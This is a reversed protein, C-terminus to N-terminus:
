YKGSRKRFSRKKSKKISKYKRSKRKVLRSKQLSRRSGRGSQRNFPNTSKSYSWSYPLNIAIPFENLWDDYTKVRQSIADDTFHRIYKDSIRLERDINANNRVNIDGREQEEDPLNRFSLWIYKYKDPPAGKFPDKQASASPISGEGLSSVGGPVYNPDFAM